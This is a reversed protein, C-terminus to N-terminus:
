ESRSLIDLQGNNIDKCYERASKFIELSNILAEREKGTSILLNVVNHKQLPKRLFFDM